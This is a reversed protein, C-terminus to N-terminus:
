PDPVPAQRGHGRSGALIRPEAVRGDALQDSASRRAPAPSRTSQPPHISSPAPGSKRTSTSRSTAPGSRRSASRCPAARSPSCRRGPRWRARRDGLDPRQAVPGHHDVEEVGPGALADPAAGGGVAHHRPRARAGHLRGHGGQQGLERGPGASARGHRLRDELLQLPVDPEALRVAGAARGGGAPGGRTGASRRPRRRGCGRARPPGRTRSPPSLWTPWSLTVSTAQISVRQEARPVLGVPSCRTGCRGPARGCRGAAASCTRRWSRPGRALEVPQREVRRGGAVRSSGVGRARTPLIRSRSSAMM